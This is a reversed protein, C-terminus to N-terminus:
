ASGLNTIECRACHSNETWKDDTSNPGWGSRCEKGVRREESRALGRTAGDGNLREVALLAEPTRHRPEAFPPPDSEERHQDGHRVENEHGREKGVAQPLDEPSQARGLEGSVRAACTGIAAGLLRELERRAPARRLGHRAPLTM